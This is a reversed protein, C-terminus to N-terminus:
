SDLQYYIFLGTDTDYLAIHWNLSLVVGAERMVAPFDPHVDNVPEKGPHDRAYDDVYCWWDFAIEPEPLMMPLQYFMNIHMYAYEDPSVIGEHWDTHKALTSEFTIRKDEPVILAQYTTGDGHFGGHTEYEYLFGNHPITLGDVKIHGSHPQADSQLHVMLGTDQDFFALQDTDEYWADLTRDLPLLFAAEPFVTSLKAAYAERSVKEAHWGPLEAASTMMGAWLNTNDTHNDYKPMIFATLSGDITMAHYPAYEVYAALRTNELAAVVHADAEHDLDWALLNSGVWLVSFFLFGLVSPVITIVIFLVGLFQIFWNLAKKM